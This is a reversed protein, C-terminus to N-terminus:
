RKTRKIPNDYEDLLFNEWERNWAAHREDWGHEGANFIRGFKADHIDIGIKNFIHELSKPLEHHWEPRDVLGLWDIHDIGNNGVFGFLNLGGIEEIPDRSPWRGTVPEYWRYGYYYLDAPKTFTPEERHGLAFSPRSNTHSRCPSLTACDLGPHRGGANAGAGAAPVSTISPTPANRMSGKADITIAAAHSAFYARCAWETFRATEQVVRGTPFSHGASERNDVPIPTM